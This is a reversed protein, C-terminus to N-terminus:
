KHIFENLADKFYKGLLFNWPRTNLCETNVKKTTELNSKEIFKMDNKKNEAMINLFNQLKDINSMPRLPFIRM